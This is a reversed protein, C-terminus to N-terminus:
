CPTSPIARRILLGFEVRVEHEPPPLGSVAPGGPQYIAHHSPHCITWDFIPMAPPYACWCHRLERVAAEAQDRSPFFGTIIVALM